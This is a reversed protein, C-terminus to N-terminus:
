PNLNNNIYQWAIWKSLEERTKELSLEGKTTINNGEVTGRHIQVWPTKEIVALPDNTIALLTKGDFILASISRGKNLATALSGTIKYGDLLQARM